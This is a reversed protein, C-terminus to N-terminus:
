RRGKRPGRRPPRNTPQRQQGHPPRYPPKKGGSRAPRRTEVAREGALVLGAALDEPSASLVRMAVSVLASRQDAAARQLAREATAGDFRCVRVLRAKALRIVERDDASYGDPETAM